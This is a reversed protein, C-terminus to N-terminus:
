DGVEYIEIYSRTEPAQQLGILAKAESLKYAATAPDETLIELEIFKSSTTNDLVDISAKVGNDFEIDAREKTLIVKIPFGLEGLIEIWEDIDDKIVRPEIELRSISGDDLINKKSKYTLVSGGYNERIRLSVGGTTKFYIDKITYFDSSDISFRKCLSDFQEDTLKFKLEIEKM